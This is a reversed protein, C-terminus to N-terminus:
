MLREWLFALILAHMSGTAQRHCSIIMEIADKIEEERPKVGPLTKVFATAAIEGACHLKPEVGDRLPHFLMEIRCTADPGVHKTASAAAADSFHGGVANRLRKLLKHHSDFFSLADSVADFLERRLRQKPPADPHCASFKAAKYEETCSLKSLAGRFELLTAMSRRLFYHTRYKKDLYDLRTLEDEGATLARTEIRLDEYVVSLQAMCDM